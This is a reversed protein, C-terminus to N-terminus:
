VVFPKADDTTPYLSFKYRSLSPQCFPKGMGDSSVWLEFLLLCFTPSGQYLCRLRKAVRSGPIRFVLCYLTQLRGCLEYGWSGPLKPSVQKERLRCTRFISLTPQTKPNDLVGSSQREFALNRDRLLCSRSCHFFTASPPFAPHTPRV